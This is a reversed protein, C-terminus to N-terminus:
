VSQMSVPRIHRPTNAGRRSPQNEHVIQQSFEERLRVLTEIGNVILQDFELLIGVVRLNEIVDESENMGDLPGAAEEAQRPQLRKRVGGFRQHSFEAVAHRHGALGHRQDKRRDIADLVNEALELGVLGLGFAAIRIQDIREIV